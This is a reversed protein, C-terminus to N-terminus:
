NMFEGLREVWIRSVEWGSGFVPVAVCGSGSPRPPDRLLAARDDARHGVRGVAVDDAGM